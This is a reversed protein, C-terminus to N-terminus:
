VWAVPNAAGKKRSFSTRSDGILLPDEDFFVCFRPTAYNGTSKAYGKITGGRYATAGGENYLLVTSGISQELRRKSLCWDGTAGEGSATTTDNQSRCYLTLTSMEREKKNFPV